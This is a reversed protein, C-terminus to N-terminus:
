RMLQMGYFMYGMSLAMIAMVARDKWGSGVLQGGTHCDCLEDSVAEMLVTAARDATVTVPQRGQAAVPRVVLEYPFWTRNERRRVDDPFLNAAWGFTEIAFWSVLVFILIANWRMMPYWMYAMAAQQVLLLIWLFNVPERRIFRSLIYGTIAVSTAAFFWMQWKAPLWNWDYSMSLYMYIMSLAMAAHGAHFWRSERGFVLCPLHHVIGLLLGASFAISIWGPFYDPGSMLFDVM